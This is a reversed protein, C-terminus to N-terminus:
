KSHEEKELILSITGIVIPLRVRIQVPLRRSDDTLWVFLRGSRRYFINNFVFAEYRMTKFKGAPTTVEEREQAEVKSQIFKKGDSLPILASQGPELRMTRLKQLGGMVEHVCEPTDIEKTVVVDNNKLADREVYSARKAHRDFKVDTVRHRHGEQADMKTSVACFQEAMNARYVDNVKFLKSVLGISQMEVDVKSDHGAAGSFAVKATGAQILRWEVKYQLKEGSPPAQPLSFTLPALLCLVVPAIFM